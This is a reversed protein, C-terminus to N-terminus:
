QKVAGKMLNVVTKSKQAMLIFLGGLIILSGGAVYMWNVEIGLFKSLTLNKIEEIKDDINKAGKMAESVKTKGKNMFAAKLRNAEDFKGKLWLEAMAKIYEATTMNEVDYPVSDSLDDLDDNDKVDGMGGGTIDDAISNYIRQVDTLYNDLTDEFYAGWKGKTKLATIYGEPTQEYMAATYGSKILNIYSTTFHQLSNYNAYGGKGTTIGAFNYDGAGPNLNMVAKHGSEHEWQAYIIQWPVGLADGAQKAYAALIANIEM